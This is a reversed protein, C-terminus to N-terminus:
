FSCESSGGFEARLDTIPMGGRQACRMEVSVAQDVPPINHTNTERQVGGCGQETKKKKLHKLIKGMNSWIGGTRGLDFGEELGM